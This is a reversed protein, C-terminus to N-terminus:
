HLSTQRQSYVFDIYLSMVLPICQASGEVDLRGLKKAISSMEFINPHRKRLGDCSSM